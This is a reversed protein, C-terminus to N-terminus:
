TLGVEDLLKLTAGLSDLQSLDIAPNEISALPPLGAEAAVGAILPYEHTKEAFYTQAATSLLYSVLKASREDGKGKLVGVGSVNVLAGPDGNPFFHNKVSLKDIGGAEEAKEYVYYHNVLGFSVEGKDVADVVLANGDYTKPENAKLATLFQKTKAEGETVRMGTVFSQFSANTPAYGVKGKYAPGTLDFVSKPLAAEQVQKSNYVLVRARGSVGVWSGTASRFDADVKDLETQPLADLLSADQLAGLAGADQSLFVAAPTKDGEELLQAALEASGGYKVSVQVGSAATFMDLLPKILKENRGSYVVLSEDSSAPDSAGSGCASTALLTLVLAAKSARSAKGATGRIRM